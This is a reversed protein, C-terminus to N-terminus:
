EFKLKFLGPTPNSWTNWSLLEQCHGQFDAMMEPHVVEDITKSALAKYMSDTDMQILEFDRRDMYKDLFNYYFM